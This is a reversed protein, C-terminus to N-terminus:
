PYDVRYRVQADARGAQLLKADSEVRIYRAKFGLSRTGPDESSGFPYSRGIEVPKSASNLLQLGFGVADGETGIIGKRRDVSPTVEELYYNVRGASVECSMEVTFDVERGTMNVKEFSPIDAVGMYVKKSQVHCLPRHEVTVSAPGLTSKSTKVVRGTDTKILSYYFPEMASSTYDGPTTDGVKIFRVFLKQDLWSERGGDGNMGSQQKAEGTRIEHYKWFAEQSTPEVGFVVGIGPIGADYVSYSKGGERYVASEITKGEYLFYEGSSSSTCGGAVGASLQHWAGMAEGRDAANAVLRVSPLSYSTDYVDCLAFASASATLGAVIAGCKLVLASLKIKKM